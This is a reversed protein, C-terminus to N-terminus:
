DKGVAPEKRDHDEDGGRISLCICDDADRHYGAAIIQFAFYLGLQLAVSNLSLQM